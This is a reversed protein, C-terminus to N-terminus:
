YVRGQAKARQGVAAGRFFLEALVPGHACLIVRWAAIM